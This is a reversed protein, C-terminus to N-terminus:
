KASHLSLLLSALKFLCDFLKFFSHIAWHWVLLIGFLIRCAKQWWSIYMYMYDSNNVFYLYKTNEILPLSDRPWFSLSIAREMAAQAHTTGLKHPWKWVKHFGNQVNSICFTYWINLYISINSCRQIQHMWKDAAILRIRYTEQTFIKSRSFLCRNGRTEKNSCLKAM